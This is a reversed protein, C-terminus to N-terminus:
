KGIVGNMNDVWQQPTVQLQFLKAINDLLTEAATPSLAQDWSQAFTKAGSAIAAMDKLYQADDGTFLSDSNTLVPVGGSKVWGAKEDDDVLTTSFFKKAIDQEAASAKSSISLYQGPNGVTNSPDGKGGEIPPFNMWGLGGSSVFTGGQAKQIGYSWSGHVMMAAKGTYLLAQDANSDATISSFGKIFANSKVLSQVKTLMDLVAPDSWSGAKGAFVNNFVDSGANRDLMFELWMMNTWRSQGALSFPAVGKANFKPILDLIDQYSKPPQVGVKDFVKKNYFLVIPQVTEVPMAYIKGNVTAAGFSSPLIKQKVADNQGFWDTLDVVQSADVYSKLGGGGWGWIMTPAQGAGIATKIKQKYADNQFFTATIKTDANAKDFRDVAAQRYPQGPPGSLSWYSAGGKSGSGSSGKDSPGSSGCAALAAAGAAGAALGLFNRRSFNSNTM